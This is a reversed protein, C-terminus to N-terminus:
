KESKEEESTEDSARERVEIPDFIGNVQDDDAMPFALKIMEKGTEKPFAGGAVGEVVSQLAQSQAGNLATQQVDKEM